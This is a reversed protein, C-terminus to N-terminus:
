FERGLILEEHIRHAKDKLYVLGPSESLKLVSIMHISPDCLDSQSSSLVRAVSIENASRKKKVSLTEHFLCTIVGRALFAAPQSPPIVFVVSLYAFHNPVRTGKTELPPIASSVNRPTKGNETM